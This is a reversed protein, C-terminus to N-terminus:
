CSRTSAGTGVDPETEQQRQHQQAEARDYRCRLGDFLPKFEVYRRLRRM